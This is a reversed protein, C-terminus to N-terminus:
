MAGVGVTVPGDIMDSEAVRASACGIARGCREWRQMADGTLMVAKAQREMQWTRGMRWGLRAGFYLVSCGYAVMAAALVEKSLWAMGLGSTVGAGVGVRVDGGAGGSRRLILGVIEHILGGPRFRCAPLVVQLLLAIVWVHHELEPGSRRAMRAAIWGAAFIVPVQWLSNLLYGLMWEEPASM